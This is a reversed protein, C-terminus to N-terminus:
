TGYVENGLLYCLETTKFLKLPSALSTKGIADNLAYTYITHVGILGGNSQIVSYAGVISNNQWIPYLVTNDVLIGRGLEYNRNVSGTYAVLHEM